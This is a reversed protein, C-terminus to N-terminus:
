KLSKSVHGIHTSSRAEIDIDPESSEFRRRKWHPKTLRPLFEADLKACNNAFKDSLSQGKQFRDRESEEL